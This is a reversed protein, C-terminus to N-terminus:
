ELGEGLTLSVISRMKAGQIIAFGAANESSVVSGIKKALRMGTLVVIHECNCSFVQNRQCYVVGTKFRTHPGRIWISVLLAAM